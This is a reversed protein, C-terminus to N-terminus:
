RAGSKYFCVDEIVTVLWIWCARWSPVLFVASEAVPRELELELDSELELDLELELALEGAGVEAESALVLVQAM